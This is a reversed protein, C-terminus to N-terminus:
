LNPRLYIRCLNLKYSLFHIIAQLLIVAKAIKKLPQLRKKWDDEGTWISEDWLPLPHDSLDLIETSVEAHDRIMLTLLIESIKRSQSSKRHSGSIITIEM